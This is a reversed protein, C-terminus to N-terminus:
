FVCEKLVIYLLNYYIMTSLISYHCDIKKIKIINHITNKVGVYISSYMPLTSIKVSQWVVPTVDTDIKSNRRVRRCLTVSYSLAYHNPFAKSTKKILVIFM